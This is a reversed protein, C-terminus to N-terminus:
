QSVDAVHGQDTPSMHFRDSSRDNPFWSKFEDLDKSAEGYKGRKIPLTPSM